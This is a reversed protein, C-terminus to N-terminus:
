GAERQEKAQLIELLARRGRIVDSKLKFLAVGLLHAAERYGLGDRDVALVAARQDPNLRRLAAMLGDAQEDREVASGESPATASDDALPELKARRRLADLAANMAVRRLWGAVNDQKAPPTTLLRVFAEQVADDAATADLTLRYVAAHIAAAHQSFLQEVQTETM